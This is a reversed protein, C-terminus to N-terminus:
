RLENQFDDNPVAAGQDPEEYSRDDDPNAEAEEEM